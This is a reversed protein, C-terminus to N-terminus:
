LVGYKRFAEGMPMGRALAARVVNEESAKQRALRLTEDAVEAPIVVM